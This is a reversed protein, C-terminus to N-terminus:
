VSSYTQDLSADNASVGNEMFMGGNQAFEPGFTQAAGGTVGSAYSATGAAVADETGDNVLGPGFARDPHRLRDPMSADEYVEASPDFATEEPMIVAPADAPPAQAPAAPGAPAVVRPQQEVEEVAVVEFGDSNRTSWWSYGAFILFALIVATLIRASM